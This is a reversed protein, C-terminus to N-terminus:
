EKFNLLFDYPLPNLLTDLQTVIKMAKRNTITSFRIYYGKERANNLKWDSTLYLESFRDRELLSLTIFAFLFLPFFLFFSSFFPFHLTQSLTQLCSEAKNDINKEGIEPRWRVCWQDFLLLCNRYLTEGWHSNGNKNTGRFCETANKISTNCYSTSFTSISLLHKRLVHTRIFNNDRSINKRIFFLKVFLHHSSLYFLYFLYIKVLLIFLHLQVPSDFFYLSFLHYM